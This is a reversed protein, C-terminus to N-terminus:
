NDMGTIHCLLVTSGYSVTIFSSHTHLQEEVWVCTQGDSCCLFFVACPNRRNMSRLFKEREYTYLLIFVPPFFKPKHKFNSICLFIHAHKCAGVRWVCPRLRSPSVSRLCNQPLQWLAWHSQVSPHAGSAAFCIREMELLEQDKQLAAFQIQEHALVYILTTIPGEALLDPGHRPIMPDHSYYQKCHKNDNDVHQAVIYKEGSSYVHTQAQLEHRTCETRLKNIAEAFCCCSNKKPAVCVIHAYVSLVICSCLVHDHEDVALSPPGSSPSLSVNFDILFSLPPTLLPETIRVVGGGSQGDGSNPRLM